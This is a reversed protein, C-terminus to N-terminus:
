KKLHIQGSQRHLPFRDTVPFNANVESIWALENTQVGVVSASPNSCSYVSEYEQHSAGIVVFSAIILGFEGHYESSIATVSHLHFWVSCQPLDVLSVSKRLIYLM